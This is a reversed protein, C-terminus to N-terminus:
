VMKSFRGCVVEIRGPTGPAGFGAGEMKLPTFIYSQMLAEWPKGTVAELMASAAIYGRNAYIFQNGPPASPALALTKKTVDLRSARADAEERPFSFM